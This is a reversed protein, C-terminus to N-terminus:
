KLFSIYVIFSLLNIFFSIKLIAAISKSTICTAACVPLLMTTPTNFSFVDPIGTSNAVMAKCSASVPCITVPHMVSLAPSNRM